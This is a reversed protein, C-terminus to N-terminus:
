SMVYVFSNIFHRYYIACNRVYSKFSFTVYHLNYFISKPHFWIFVYSIPNYTHQLWYGFTLKNTRQKQFVFVEIFLFLQWVPLMGFFSRLLLVVFVFFLSSEGKSFNPFVNFSVLLYLNTEGRQAHSLSWM